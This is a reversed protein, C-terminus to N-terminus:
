VNIRANVHGGQNPKAESLMVQLTDLSSGIANLDMLIDFQIPEQKKLEAISTDIAKSCALLCSTIAKPNLDM